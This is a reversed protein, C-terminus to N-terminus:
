IINLPNRLVYEEDSDRCLEHIINYWKFLFMAKYQFIAKVTTSVLDIVAHM